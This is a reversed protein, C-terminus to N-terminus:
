MGLPMERPGAVFQDMRWVGDVGKEWRMFYYFHAEQEEGGIESVQDFEGVEYAASKPTPRM